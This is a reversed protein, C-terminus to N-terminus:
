WPIDSRRSILVTSMLLLTHFLRVKKVWNDMMKPVDVGPYWYYQTNTLAKLSISEASRHRNSNRGM